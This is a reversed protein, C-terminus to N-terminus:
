GACSCVLFFFHWSVECRLDFTATNTHARKARLKTALARARGRRRDGSRRERLVETARRAGSRARRCRLLHRFLHAARPERERRRRQPRVHRHPRDRCRHESDRNRLSSRTHHARHRRGLLESLPHRPHIRRAPVKSFIFCSACHALLHSHTHAADFSSTIM